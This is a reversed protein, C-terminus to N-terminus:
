PVVIPIRQFPNEIQPLSETANEFVLLKRVARLNPSNTNILISGPYQRMWHGLTMYQAYHRVAMGFCEDFGLQRGFQNEFKETRQSALDNLFHILKEEQRIRNECCYQMGHWKGGFFDSFTSVHVQAPLRGRFEEVSLRCRKLFEKKSGALRHVIEKIDVETDALIFNFEFLVGEKSLSDVIVRSIEILPIDSEFIGVGLQDDMSDPYDPCVPVFFQVTEKNEYAHGFIIVAREWDKPNLNNRPWFGINGDKLEKLIRSVVGVTEEKFKNMKKNNM